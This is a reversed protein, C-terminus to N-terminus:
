IGGNGPECQGARALCIVTALTTAPECSPWFMKSYSAPSLSRVPRSVCGGRAPERAAPWDPDVVAVAIGAVLASKGNGRAVSLAAPGHAAFAGSVFKKEWPLVRFYSATM